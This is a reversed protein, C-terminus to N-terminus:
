YKIIKMKVASPQINNHATGSGNTATSGSITQAAANLTFAHGHGSNTTTIALGTQKTDTTFVNYTTGASADAPTQLDVSYTATSGNNDNLATTHFHGPDNTTHNHTGDSGGVTGSISSTSNTLTGSGHSHSALEATTLVHTEEGGISGVTNGLTGSSSGGRGVSTRRAMGPLNFTTTGNGVGWITGIAAFLNSYTARSVASGDEELWGTPVTTGSFDMSVGAPLLSTWSLVGSGNNTLVQNNTTGNDTPLTISYSASLAPANITIKNVSSSDKIAINGNFTKSGSITQSGDSMVFSTSTGSDPISYTRNAIQATTITAETSTTASSPDFSIKKSIDTSDTIKTPNVLNKAM